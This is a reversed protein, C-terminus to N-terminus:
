EKMKHAKEVPFIQDFEGWIILVEQSLDLNTHMKLPALLKTVPWVTRVQPLPALQFGEGTTIGKILAIKDERKDGFYKQLHLM